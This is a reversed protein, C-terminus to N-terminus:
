NNDNPFDVSSVYKSIIAITTNCIYAHKYVNKCNINLSIDKKCYYQKVSSTLIQLKFLVSLWYKIFKSILFNSNTYKM